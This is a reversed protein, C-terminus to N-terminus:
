RAHVHHRREVRGDRARSASGVPATGALALAALLSLNRTTIRM